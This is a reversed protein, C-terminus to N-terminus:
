PPWKPGLRPPVTRCQAVWAMVVGGRDTNLVAKLLGACCAGDGRDDSEFLPATSQWRANAEAVCWCGLWGSAV